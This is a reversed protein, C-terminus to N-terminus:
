NERKIYNVTGILSILSVLNLLVYSIINDSTEPVNPLVPANVKETLVYVSFHNTTFTAYDNNVEVSHEEKNGEDDVYYIILDKGKLDEPVPISVKFEGDELKKISTKKTNSYLSIDFAAYNNTGLTKDIVDNKVKKVTISTDLPISTDDSTISINSGLNNGVYKPTELNKNDKKCIAFKYTKGNITVNYYNDGATKEDILGNENFSIERGASEDYYNLSKFTDGVTIKIKADEGIYDKIRNIAAEIYADTTNKTESPIYLIHNAVLGIPRTTYPKGEYYVVVHGIAETYLGDSDGGGARADFKYTINAGNTADILDKTFNLAESGSVKKSSTNAFLYNILYLDELRYSNKVTIEEDNKWSKMKGLTTDVVNSIEKSPEIYKAKVKRTVTKGSKYLNIEVDEVNENTGYAYVEYGYEEAIDNAIASLLFESDQITAPRKANVEWVGNPAIKDFVESSKDKSIKLSNYSVDWETSAVVEYEGIYGEGILENISSETVMNPEYSFIVLANDIGDRKFEGGTIVTKAGINFQSYYENWGTEGDELEWSIKRSTFTGGKIYATGEQLINTFKGDNITITGMNWISLITGNNVTLKGSNDIINTFEGNNIIGEGGESVMFFADIKGNGVSDNVTLKTGENVYFEAVKLTHGNLDLVYEGEILEIIDDVTVDKDLTITSDKITVSKFTEKMDGASEIYAANVNILPLFLFSLIVTLVVLNCKKFTKFM